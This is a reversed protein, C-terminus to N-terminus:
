GERRSDGPEELLRECARRLASETLVGRHSARVRGSRDILWTHPIQAPPAFTGTLAGGPRVVPYTVGLEASVRALQDWSLEEVNLGLVVLGRPGLEEHLRSMGPIEARCPACWSAWLNLLVVEGAHDRLSFSRGELDRLVLTTAVPASDAALLRVRGQLIWWGWSLAIVLGIWLGV